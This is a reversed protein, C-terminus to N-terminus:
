SFSYGVLYTDMVPEYYLEIIWIIVKKQPNPSTSSLVYLIITLVNVKDEPEKEEPENTPKEKNGDTADEEGSPKEAGLNKEGENAVEETVRSLSYLFGACVDTVTHARRCMFAFGILGCNVSM